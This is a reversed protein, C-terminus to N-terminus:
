RSPRTKAISEYTKRGMIVTSSDTIKTFRDRDIPLDWPLDGDMGLVRNNTYAAIISVM